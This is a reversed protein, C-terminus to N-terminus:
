KAKVKNIKFVGRVKEGDIKEKLEQTVELVLKYKEGVKWDKIEELDSETLRLRPSLEEMHLSIAKM